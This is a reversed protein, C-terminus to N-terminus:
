KLKEKLIDNVLKPNAKGKTERMTQGVLFGFAQEKGSKFDEVSKPNSIIIRDIIGELEGTDSIQELGKGKVIEKAEKGLAFMEEFVEKAIKGSITGEQIMTFLTALNEPTIKSESIEMNNVNLLRLLEGMIWNSVMKYDTFLSCCKEFYDAMDKTSTLIDSDYEPLGYEKVFRTKRADPLEPLLSKIEEVWSGELVIPPLDPEPFYRYDHAEEKSRMSFTQGKVEDWRRTEQIVKEGKNLLKTQREIEYEIGRQVSKFSNLNKIEAKTGYEKQGIPRLSVNADCRMSGEQMKVDSIGIYLLISKLKTLFEKTEESSRLDPETVIEILPVVSRNLDVLSGTGSNDHLLKGADEEIHIRNIRVRKTEGDQGQIEICGGKVIPMDFQSIQYAKPLDPYFYNKRDFKSYESITGNIALGAKVSYEVVMKNLVPLVGPMGICIPCCHTNEKGGFENPCGCFIKSKTALEVHIELGIVSEYGM